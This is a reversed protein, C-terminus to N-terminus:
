KRASSLKFTTNEPFNDIPRFGYWKDRSVVARAYTDLCDSIYQALIFDPTGSESEVSYVNILKRLDEQFNMRTAM